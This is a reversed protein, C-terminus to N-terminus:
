KQDFVLPHVVKSVCGFMFGTCCCLVYILLGALIVKQDLPLFALEADTKAAESWCEGTPGRMGGRAQFGGGGGM